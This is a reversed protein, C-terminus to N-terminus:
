RLVIYGALVAKVRALDPGLSGNQLQLNHYLDRLSASFDDLAASLTEGAGFEDVAAWNVVVHSEEKTVDLPIAQLM